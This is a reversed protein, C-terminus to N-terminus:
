RGELANLGAEETLAKLMDELKRESIV